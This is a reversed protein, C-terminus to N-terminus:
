NYKTNYFLESLKRHKVGLDDSNYFLESLRLDDSFIISIKLYISSYHFLLIM